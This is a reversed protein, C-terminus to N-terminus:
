PLTPRQCSGGIDAWRLGGTVFSQFPGGKLICHPGISFKPRWFLFFPKTLVGAMYCDGYESGREGNLVLLHLNVMWPPLLVADKYLRFERFADGCALDDVHGLKAKAVEPAM